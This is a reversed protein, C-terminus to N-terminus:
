CLFFYVCIVGTLFQEQAAQGIDIGLYRIPMGVALKGADFAHLTIQGGVARAATKDVSHQLYKGQRLSDYVLEPLEPMKEPIMIWKTASGFM